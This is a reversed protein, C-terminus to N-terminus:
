NVGPKMLTLHFNHFHKESEEPWKEYTAGLFHVGKESQSEPTAWKVTAHLRRCHPCQTHLLLFGECHLEIKFIKYLWFIMYQLQLRPM